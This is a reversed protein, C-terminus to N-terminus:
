RAPRPVIKVLEHQPDPTTVEPGHPGMFVNIESRFGVEGPLYIGPEISFGIGPILRRTDRTEFNDINPGSGHTGLDISHGTRHIFAEGHGRDRILRRAVDDVEFGAIAEGRRCRDRIFDVAAVRADRVARWIDQMRAPVETGVFAMWTQDAYVSDEREKGWLDILLVDGVAIPAHEAPSPAYHPNAANANVAVTADTGVRVGARKLEGIIWERLAWETPSEGAALQDGVRSFAGHAVDSIARAARRHSAEGESTWRSYFASVLDASGTVSVGASRVLDVIGGPVRDVYPVASGESYEMAVRGGTPLASRLGADLEQWSRYVLNEGLWERWPQQEIAHTIAVPAGKAPILVFYRRTLGSLGLLRAAVPNTEGFDYLLWGDLRNSQLQEQVRAVTEGDLSVHQASGAM